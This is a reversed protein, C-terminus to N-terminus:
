REENRIDNKIGFYGLGGVVLTILIIITIGWWGHFAYAINLAVFIGYIFAMVMLVICMSLLFSTGKGKKHTKGQKAPVPNVM